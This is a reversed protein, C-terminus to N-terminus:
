RVWRELEDAVARPTKDAPLLVVPKGAPDMLVAFRSHSVLYAGEANPKEIDVTM